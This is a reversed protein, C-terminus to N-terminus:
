GPRKATTSLEIQPRNEISPKHKMGALIQQDSMGKHVALLMFNGLMDKKRSLNQQSRRSERLIEFIYLLLPPACGVACAYVWKFSFTFPTDWDSSLSNLLDFVYVKLFVGFNVSLLSWVLGHLFREVFASRHYLECHDANRGKPAGPKKNQSYQRNTESIELVRKHHTTVARRIACNSVILGLWAIASPILLISIPWKNTGRENIILLVPM